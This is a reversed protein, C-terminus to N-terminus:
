FTVGEKHVNRLLPSLDTDFENRSIFYCSISTDTQLSISAIIDETRLIETSISVTGDLVVMIDIDSELTADGRAQSGYLVIQYLRSEYLATFEQKVLNLVKKIDSTM